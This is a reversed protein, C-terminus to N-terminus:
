VEQALFTYKCGCGFGLSEGFESLCFRAHINAPSASRAPKVAWSAYLRMNLHGLFCLIEGQPPVVKM